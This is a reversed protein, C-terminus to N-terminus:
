RQEEFQRLLAAFLKPVKEMVEPSEVFALRMQTLGPNHAATVKQYFGAMPAVLLTYQQGDLLVKGKQACFQVFALADFGPNVIARVDLVSYISADPSSVILGPLEKRMNNTFTIMMKGYYSRQQAYWLRLQEHSEHALAGFIFQGIVNSCLNSTNEAVAAKHLALNDTVLAGIRLGCANWVKSASEISIRRGTIGPVEDESLNWVSVTQHDVYHLERYAEDSMLWMDYKVCLRALALFTEKDYFHGTPNDYPIIVLAGPQEKRILSEIEELPPLSFKGHDHLHRRVSVIRRGLREAMSLYNTYAADILFLPRDTDNVLGCTGQIALGMAQSGGDTVQVHLGKTDCSSSAIINLFAANTEEFGATSSYKVVGTAFPSHTGLTRLRAQLAPHMPLSVNGIALNIAKVTDTREAFLMQAIRIGSPQRKKFHNSLSAM